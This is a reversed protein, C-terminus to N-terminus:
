EKCCGDKCCAEKCYGNKCLYEALKQTQEETFIIKQHVEEDLITIGKGKEGEEISPCCGAPRGCLMIKKM